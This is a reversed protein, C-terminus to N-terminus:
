MAKLLKRAEAAYSTDPYKKIIRDLYPKAATPMKNRIYNKAM